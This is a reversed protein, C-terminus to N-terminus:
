HEAWDFSAMAATASDLEALAEDLETLQRERKAKTAADPQLTAPIVEITWLLSALSTRLALMVAARDPTLEGATALRLRELRRDVARAALRLATLSSGVGGDAIGAIDAGKGTAVDAAVRERLAVAHATAAGIDRELAQLTREVGSTAPAPAAIAVLLLLMPLARTAGRM